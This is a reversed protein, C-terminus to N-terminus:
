RCGDTSRLASSCVTCLGVWRGVWWLLLPCSRQPPRPMANSASPCGSHCVCTGAAAAAAAAAAALLTHSSRRPLMLCAVTRPQTAAAHGIPYQVTPVTPVPPVSLVQCGPRREGLLHDPPLVRLQKWELGAGPTCGVCVRQAHVAAQGGRRRTTSVYGCPYDLEITGRLCALCYRSEGGRTMPKVQHM